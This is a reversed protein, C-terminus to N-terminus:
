LEDSWNEGIKLKWYIPDTTEFSGNPLYDNQPWEELM